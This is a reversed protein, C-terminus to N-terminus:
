EGEEKFVIWTKHISNTLHCTVKKEKMFRKLATVVGFEPTAEIWDHGALIGGQRVKPWWTVIDAYAAEYSHDGDIYIYDFFCDPFYKAAHISKDRYIKVNSIHLYRAMVQNYLDPEKDYPDIGILLKPNCTLLQQLNYSFRVGIEVIYSTLNHRKLFEPIDSRLHINKLDEKM